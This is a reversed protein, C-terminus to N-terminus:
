KDTQDKIYKDIPGETIKNEVDKLIDEHVDDDYTLQKKVKGFPRFSMKGPLRIDEHDYQKIVRRCAQRIRRKLQSFADNKRMFSVHKGNAEFEILKPPASTLKRKKTKDIKTTTKRKKAGKGRKKKEVEDDDSNRKRKRSEPKKESKKEVKKEVLKKVPKKEPKKAPKKPAPPLELKAKVKPTKIEEVEESESDSSLDEEDSSIESDEDIDIDSLNDDDRKDSM